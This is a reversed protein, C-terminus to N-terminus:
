KIIDAFIKDVCTACFLSYISTFHICCTTIKIHKKMLLKKNTEEFKRM